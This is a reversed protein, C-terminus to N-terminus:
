RITRKRKQNERKMLRKASRTNHGQSILESFRQRNKERKILLGGLDTNM